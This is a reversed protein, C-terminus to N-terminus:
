PVRFRIRAAAEGAWAGQRRRLPDPVARVRLLRDAEVERTITQERREFTPAAQRDAVRGAPEEGVDPEVPRVVEAPLHRPGLAAQAVHVVDRRAAVVRRPRLIPANADRPKRFAPAQPGMRPPRPNQPGRTPSMGRNRVAAPRAGAGAPPSCAGSGCGAEPARACGFGHRRVDIRGSAPRLTRVPVRRRPM